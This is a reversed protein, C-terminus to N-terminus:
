QMTVSCRTAETVGSAVLSYYSDGVARAYTHSLGSISLTATYGVNDPDYTDAGIIAVDDAWMECKRIVAYPARKGPVPSPGVAIVETIPSVLIVTKIITDGRRTVEKLGDVGKVRVQQAGVPLSVDTVTTASYTIPEKTVSVPQDIATKPTIWLRLSRSTKAKYVVAGKRYASVRVRIVRDRASTLRVTTRYYGGRATRITKIRTWRTSNLWRQYITVTKGSRHPSIRGKITVKQGATLTRDPITLSIRQVHRTAARATGAAPGLLFSGLTLAIAVTIASARKLNM